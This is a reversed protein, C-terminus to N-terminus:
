SVADAVAAPNDPEVTLGCQSDAVLDNSADGALLIPKAALMYDFLKNPSVGYRYLPSRHFPVALADMHSFFKQVASKPIRGLMHFNAAGSQAAREPLPGANPGDGAFLFSINASALLRAADLLMEVAHEGYDRWCLRRSVPRRRAGPRHYSEGCL